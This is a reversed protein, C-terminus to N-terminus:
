RKGQGEAEPQAPSESEPQAMERRAPIEQQAAIEPGAIERRASAINQSDVLAREEGALAQEEHSLFPFSQNVGSRGLHLDM